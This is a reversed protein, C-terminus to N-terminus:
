VSSSTTWHHSMFTHNVAPLWSKDSILQFVNCARHLTFFWCFKSYSACFSVITNLKNMFGLADSSFDLFHFYYHSVHSVLLLISYFFHLALFRPLLKCHQKPNCHCGQTDTFLFPLKDKFSFFFLHFQTYFLYVSLSRWSLRFWKETWRKVGSGGM